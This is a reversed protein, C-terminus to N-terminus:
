KVRWPSVNRSAGLQADVWAPTKTNHCGLCPNPIGYNRSMSPTVFRFTHGSVSVNAIEPAIRPMHCTMCQSGSSGARHNQDETSVRAYGYKM